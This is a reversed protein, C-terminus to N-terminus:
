LVELTFGERQERKVLDAKVPLGEPNYRLQERFFPRAKAKWSELNRWQPDLFSLNLPRQGDAIWQIVSHLNALDPPMTGRSNTAGAVAGAGAAADQAFLDNWPLALAGLAGLAQRRTLGTRPSMPPHEDPMPTSNPM